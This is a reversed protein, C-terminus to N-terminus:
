EGHTNKVKDGVSLSLYDGCNKGKSDWASIFRHITATGDGNDIIDEHPVRILLNGRHDPDNKGERKENNEWLAGRNDNNFEKAM